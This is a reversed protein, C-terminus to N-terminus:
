IVTFLISFCPTVTDIHHDNNKKKSSKTETSSTCASEQKSIIYYDWTYSVMFIVVSAVAIYMCIGAANFVFYFLHANKHPDVISKFFVVFFSLISIGFVAGIVSISLKFYYSYLLGKTKYNFSLAIICHYVIFAVLWIIATTTHIIADIPVNKQFQITQIKPSYLDVAFSHSISFWAQIAVFSAIIYMFNSIFHLKNSSLMNFLLLKNPIIVQEDILLRTHFIYNVLMVSVSLISSGYVYITKEPESSGIASILPTVIWDSYRKYTIFTYRYCIFFTIFATFSPLLCLFYVVYTSSFILRHLM